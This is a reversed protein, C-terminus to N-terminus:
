EVENLEIHLLKDGRMKLRYFVLYRGQITSGFTVETDEPLGQLREILEGVTLRSEEEILKLNREVEM